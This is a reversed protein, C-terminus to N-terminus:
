RRCGKTEWRDKARAAATTQWQMNTVTDPGGCGLPLVHHKVYGPCAGTPRGTSPCPHQRQFEHKVTMSRCARRHSAYRWRSTPVAARRFPFRPEFVCSRSFAEILTVAAVAGGLMGLMGARWVENRTPLRAIQSKIFGLDDQIAYLDGPRTSIISFLVLRLLSVKLAGSAYACRVNSTPASLIDPRLRPV